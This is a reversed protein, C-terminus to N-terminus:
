RGGPPAAARSISVYGWYCRAERGWTLVMIEDGAHGAFVGYRIEADTPPLELTFDDLSEDHTFTLIKRDDLNSETVLAWHRVVRSPDAAAPLDVTVSEFSGRVILQGNKTSVGDVEDIKLPTYQGKVVMTKSAGVFPVSQAAVQSCSSLVFATALPFGFPVAHRM